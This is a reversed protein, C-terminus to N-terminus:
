SRPCKKPLFVSRCSGNLSMGVHGSPTSGTFTCNFKTGKYKGAVIEGPGNWQGEVKEFFVADRDKAVAPLAISTAGIMAIM